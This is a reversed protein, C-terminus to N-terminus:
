WRIKIGARLARDDAEDNLGHKFGLGLEINERLEYIAGLVLERAPASGSPDPNSDQGVDAVLKLKQMAAYRVAASVHWLEVREGIRNRNHTYGLHGLLEVKGLEYAAAMSAGVRARGAGLGLEDRGIPLLLTPKLAMSVGDREHFRWKLSVSADGRGAAVDGDTVERLYPLEVEAEVKDAIGRALKATVESSRTTAGGERERARQAHLELEWEGKDLVGTDETLMPHDAWVPAMAVAALWPLARKM